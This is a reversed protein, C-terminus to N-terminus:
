AATSVLTVVSQSSLSDLMLFLRRLVSVNFIGELRQLRSNESADIVAFASFVWPVGLLVLM